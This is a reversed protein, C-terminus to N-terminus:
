LLMHDALSLRNCVNVSIQHLPDNIVVPIMSALYHRYPLQESVVAQWLKNTREIFLCRILWFRCCLRGEPRGLVTHLGVARDGRNQPRSGAGIGHRDVLEKSPPQLQDNPPLLLRRVSGLTKVGTVGEIMLEAM